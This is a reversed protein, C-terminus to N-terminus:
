DVCGTIMMAASDFVCHLLNLVFRKRKEGSPLVKTLPDSDDDNTPVHLTRSEDRACGECVFHCAISKTKKKLTSHPMTANALVSQHDGLIYSPGNIRIGLM